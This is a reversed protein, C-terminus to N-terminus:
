QCKHELLLLTQSSLNFHINQLWELHIIIKSCHRSVTTGMYIFKYITSRCLHKFQIFFKPWAHNQATNQIVLAIKYKNSSNFTIVNIKVPQFRVTYLIHTEIHGMLHQRLTIRYEPLFINYWRQMHMTGTIFCM